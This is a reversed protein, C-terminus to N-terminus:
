NKDSCSTFLYNYLLRRSMAIATPAWLFQPLAVWLINIFWLAYVTCLLLVHLYKELKEALCHAAVPHVNAPRDPAIYAARSCGTWM